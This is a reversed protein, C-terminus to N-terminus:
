STKPGLAHILMRKVHADSLFMVEQVGGEVVTEADSNEGDGVILVRGDNKEETKKEEEKKEEEEDWGDLKRPTMISMDVLVKKRKKANADGSPLTRLVKVDTMDFALELCSELCSPDMSRQLSASQEGPARRNQWAAFDKLHKRASPGDFETMYPVPENVLIVKSTAM